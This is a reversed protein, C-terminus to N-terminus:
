SEKIFSYEVKISKKEKEKKRGKKRERKRKRERKKERKGEKRGGERGGERRVGRGERGGHPKCSRLEGVLSQVWAWPLSLAM